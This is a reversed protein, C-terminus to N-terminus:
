SGVPYIREPLMRNLVVSSFSKTVASMEELIGPPETTKETSSSFELSVESTVRLETFESPLLIEMDCGTPKWWYRENRSVRVEPPLFCLRAEEAIGGSELV